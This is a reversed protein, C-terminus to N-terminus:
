KKIRRRITTESCKYKRALEAIKMGDEYDQRITIEDVELRPRGTSKIPVFTNEKEEQKKRKAKGFLM